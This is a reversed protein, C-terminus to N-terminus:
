CLMIAFCVITVLCNISLFLMFALMDFDSSAKRVPVFKDDQTDTNTISIKRSETLQKLIPPLYNNHTKHHLYVSKITALIIAVSLLLMCTLYVSFICISDSNAPLSENIFSLYITYSLLVSIAMTLREGSAAPLRFVFCNMISLSVPPVVGKIIHFAFRRSLAISVVVDGTWITGNLFRTDNAPEKQIMIDLIEWENSEQYFELVPNHENIKFIFPSYRQYAPSIITKCIQYDFPFKTIDIKCSTKFLNHTTWIVHGDATIIVNDGKQVKRNNDFANFIVVSPMWIDDPSVTIYSPTDMDSANWKLFADYWTIILKTSTQIYQNVESVFNVSILQYKVTVHVNDSIRETPQLKPQYNSLLDTFFGRRDFDCNAYKILGVVFVWWIGSTPM